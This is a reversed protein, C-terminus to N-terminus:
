AKVKFRDFVRGFRWRHFTIDQYCGAQYLPDDDMLARATAMDPVDLLVVSGICSGGDDTLMPGHCMVSNAQEELYGEQADRNNNRIDMGAPADLGHFLVQINGEARPCDPWTYALSAQWRNITWRKQVGGLVYPEDLVHQEAAARHPFEILRLSGLDASEDDTTFPGAFITQNDFAKLYDLHSARYQDRLAATDAEDFILISFLM